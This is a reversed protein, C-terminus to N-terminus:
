GPTVLSVREVQPVGAVAVVEVLVASPSSAPVQEVVRDEERDGGLLLGAASLRLGGAGVRRASDADEVPDEARVRHCEITM